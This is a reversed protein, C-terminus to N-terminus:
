NLDLLGEPLSVKMERNVGDIETIFDDNVPILVDTGQPTRVGFLVNETADDVYAITGIPKDGDDVNVVTFGELEELTLENEGRDSLKKPFFVDCGTLEQAQSKDDVDCFKVLATEGSKFRYEEFFFPVLIGDVSLILYDSDVRDFVDDSFMFSVEGKVGHPKGIRGIRYVEEARIM